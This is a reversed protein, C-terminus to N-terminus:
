GPYSVPNENFAKALTIPGQAIAERSWDDLRWAGALGSALWFVALVGIVLKM